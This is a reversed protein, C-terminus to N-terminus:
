AKGRYIKLNEIPSLVIFFTFLAAPMLQLFLRKLSTDLHWVLDKPTVVYVMFYGSLMIFYMLVLIFISTKYKEPLSFKLFLFCFIFVIISGNQLFIDLFETFYWKGIILYRSFDVLRVMTLKIEQGSLLDNSPAIQIKFYIVLTLIPLLGALFSVMDTLYPKWGKKTFIVIFHAILFSIIFLFGENKTWASFGAMLGALFVFSLNREPLTNYLFVLVVTALIFFGVPVDSFQSIGQKTFYTIGLLVLGALLGHSHSRLYAISSVLLMVTAYTFLFAILIPGIVTESGVYNWIRAVNSSVMLPYDPHSWAYINSFAELWNSGGRFIFRARMNWIAWADWTGHPNNFSRLIFYLMSLILTIWFGRVLLLHSDQTRNAYSNAYNLSIKHTKRKLNFILCLALFIFSVFVETLISFGNLSNLLLLSVFFIYSSIGLGLGVSLSSKLAFSSFIDRDLWLANIIFFGTLLPLLISFIIM